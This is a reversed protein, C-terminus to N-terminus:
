NIQLHIHDDHRVAQCGHFRIKDNSLGMRTKLHPEIFIKQISKEKLLFQLIAKTRKQDFLIKNKNWQPVFKELLSYQWYGKEACSKPANYEGLKPEEFVGYGIFSPAKKNLAVGLTNKYFFAIDLKKGDNHSLHPLLPFVDYFPFNADLYSIITNPFKAEMKKSVNSISQKLKPTVYHRNLVCTIINLPKIKADSFIPLPVRGFTKAIPPIILFSAFIYTITFISALLIRRNFASKKYLLYRILLSLLYIVGGVQTTITLVLILVFHLLGKVIKM